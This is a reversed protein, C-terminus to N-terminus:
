DGTKVSAAERDCACGKKTDCSKTKELCSNGCPIAKDTCTKCCSASVYSIRSQYQGLVHPAPDYKLVNIYRKSLSSRSWFSFSNYALSKIVPRVDSSYGTSTATSKWLQKIKKEKLYPLAAISEISFHRLYNVIKQSYVRDGVYGVSGPSTTTATASFGNSTNINTTSNQGPIWTFVPESWTRYDVIPDTIGFSVLIIEDPMEKEGVEKITYGASILLYKVINAIEKFELSDTPVDKIGSVLVAKPNKKFGESYSDIVIEYTEKGLDQVLEVVGRQIVFSLGKYYMFEFPEKHVVEIPEGYQELVAGKSKGKFEEANVNLNKKFHEVERILACGSLLNLAILAFLINKM